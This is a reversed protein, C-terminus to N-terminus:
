AIYYDRIYDLALTMNEFVVQCDVTLWPYIDNTGFGIIPIGHDRAFQCEQGTGVSNKTIDLNLLVIDCKALKSLYFEKVQKDTRHKKVKYSFYKTPDVVRVNRGCWEAIKELRESAMARWETGGDEVDRCAGALYIGVAGM